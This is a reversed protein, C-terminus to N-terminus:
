VCRVSHGRSPQKSQIGRAKLTYKRTFMASGKRIWGSLLWARATASPKWFRRRWSARTMVTAPASAYYSTQTTSRKLAALTAFTAFLMVFLLMSVAANM